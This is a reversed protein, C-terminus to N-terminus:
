VRRHPCFIWAFGEELKEREAVATVQGMNKQVKMEYYCLCKESLDFLGVHNSWVDRTQSLVFYMFAETHSIVHVHSRPIRLQDACYMLGDMLRAKMKPVTIVLEKVMSGDVTKGEELPLSFVQELFCKLLDVARYKVGYITDSGDQLVLRILKDTVSGEGALATAYATEGILWGGDKQRCVATPLTWNEERGWCSLQTYGDCLDLGLILGDM